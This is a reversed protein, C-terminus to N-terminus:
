QLKGAPAYQVGQQMPRTNGNVTPKQRDIIEDDWCGNNLYTLPDKRFAKDPTSAVYRGVVELCKEKQSATLKSWKRLSAAKGASKDYRNWWEDFLECEGSPKKRSREQANNGREEKRKGIEEKLALPDRTQQSVSALTARIDQSHKENNNNKLSNLFEEQSENDIWRRKSPRDVKQHRSWDDVILFPKGNYTFSHLYLAERLERLASAITDRHNDDDWPFLMSAIQGENHLIVGYDDCHNWIGVFVLRAELSLKSIKISSWFEPKIIRARAM